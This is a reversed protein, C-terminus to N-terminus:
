RDWAELDSEVARQRLGDQERLVGGDDDRSMVALASGFDRRLIVMASRKPEVGGLFPLDCLMADLHTPIPPM